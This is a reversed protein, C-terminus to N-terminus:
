MRLTRENYSSLLSLFHYYLLHSSGDRSVESVMSSLPSFIGDSYSDYWGKKVIVWYFFFGTAVIDLLLHFLSLTVLSPGSTSVFILTLIIGILSEWFEFVTVFKARGEMDMVCNLIGCTTAMLHSIVVVVSFGQSLDVISEDYGLLDMIRPVCLVTIIATPISIIVNGAMGLNIYKGATVFGEDTEIGCAINVHKYISNYWASNILHTLNVIFWVNSYCIMARLGMYHSIIIITVIDEGYSVVAQLM